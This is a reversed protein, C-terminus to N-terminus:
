FWREHFKCAFSEGVRRFCPSLNLVKYCFEFCAFSIYAVILNECRSKFLNISCIVELYFRFFREPIACFGQFHRVKNPVSELM